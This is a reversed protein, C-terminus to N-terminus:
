LLRPSWRQGKINDSLFVFVSHIFWKSARKKGAV